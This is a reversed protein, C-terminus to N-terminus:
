ASAPPPFAPGREAGTFYKAAAETRSHVHLKEYIHRVHVRVTEVSAGLRSAIEKNAFGQALWKLIEEERPTLLAGAEIQAAPRRFVAIVQRAIQGTMPAGGRMVDGIARILEQPETCKLLYGSAGMKLAEFVHEHDAYVTVMLVQTQPAKRRLRATCEIGSMGPLNIDMLVVDPALAPLRRIAEEGSECAGVCQFGPEVGILKAWNERVGANDEVIGVKISM